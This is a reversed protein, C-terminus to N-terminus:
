ALAVSAAHLEGLADRAIPGFDEQNGPESWRTYARGIALAGLQGAVMAAPDDVGRARLADSIVRASSRGKLAEREQLEPNAAIVERRQVAFDRREASFIVALADLGGAVMGLPTAAAPAGAIGTALQQHMLDQGLFLIERKDPSHRFFTSKTLGARAAIEAVTTRDYGHETFLEIAARVLREVADPEWRAV